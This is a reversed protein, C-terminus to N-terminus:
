PNTAGAVAIVNGVMRPLVMALYKNGYATQSYFQVIPDKTFAEPIAYSESVSGVSKSSVLFKPASALGGIAAQIDNVLYHATLYNFALTIDSDTGFLAQNLNMTAEAQARTIDVDQIYNLINDSAVRWKSSTNPAEGTVGNQSCDYFLKTAALYVRDGENYLAAADYVPLYPFDRYFLDKFDSASITSLDM